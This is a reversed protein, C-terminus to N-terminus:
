KRRSLRLKALTGFKAYKREAFKSRVLQNYPLAIEQILNETLM